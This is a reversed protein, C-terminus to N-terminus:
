KLIPMILPRPLCETRVLVARAAVSLIQEARRMANKLRTLFVGYDETGLFLDAETLADFTEGIFKQPLCGTVVIKELCGNKYEACDLVAEIAEKRAENLFSCTNVILVHVEEINNSIECGREKIIALLKESDVRNKDCGLSILGFKKASFDITLTKM